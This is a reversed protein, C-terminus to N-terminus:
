ANKPKQLVSSMSKKDLVLRGCLCVAKSSRNAFTSRARAGIVVTNSGAIVATKQATYEGYRRDLQCTSKKHGQLSCHFVKNFRKM